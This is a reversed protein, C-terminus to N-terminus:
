SRRSVYVERQRHEPAGASDLINVTSNGYDIAGQEFGKGTGTVGEDALRVVEDCYLQVTQSLEARYV